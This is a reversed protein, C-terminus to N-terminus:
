CPARLRQLRDLIEALIAPDAHQTFHYDIGTEYSRKREDPQDHGTVAIIVPRRKGTEQRFQHAVDYGTLYGPLGLDLLVVDPWHAGAAALGTSGDSATRVVHGALRLALAVSDATDANDEIVLVNLGNEM